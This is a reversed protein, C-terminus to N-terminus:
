SLFYVVWFVKLFDRFYLLNVLDTGRWSHMLLSSQKSLSLHVLIHLSLLGAVQFFCLSASIGLLLLSLASSSGALSVIWGITGGAPQAPCQLNGAKFRQWRHELLCQPLLQRQPMEAETLYGRVCIETFLEFLIRNVLHSKAPISTKTMKVCSPDSLFLFCWHSFVEM